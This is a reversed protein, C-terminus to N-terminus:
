GQVLVKFGGYLMRWVKAAARAVRRYAAVSGEPMPLVFGDVYAM